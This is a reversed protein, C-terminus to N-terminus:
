LADFGGPDAEGGENLVDEYRLAYRTNNEPIADIAFYAQRCREFEGPSEKRIIQMMDQISLPLPRGCAIMATNIDRDVFLSRYFASLGDYRRLKLNSTSGHYRPEILYNSAIKVETVSSIWRVQSVKGLEGPDFYRRRVTPSNMVVRNM